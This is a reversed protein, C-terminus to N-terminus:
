SCFSLSSCGDTAGVFSTLSEAAALCGRCEEGAGLISGVLAYNSRSPDGVSSSNIFSIRVEYELAMSIRAIYYMHSGEFFTPNRNAVINTGMERNPSGKWLVKFLCCFPGARDEPQSSM